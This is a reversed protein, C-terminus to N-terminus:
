SDYPLQLNEVDQYQSTNSPPNNYSRLINVPKEYLITSFISEYQVLRRKAQLYSFPPDSRILNQRCEVESWSRKELCEKQVACM